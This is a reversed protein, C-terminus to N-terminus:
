YVIHIEKDDTSKLLGENYNSSRIKKGESDYVIAKGDKVGDKIKIVASTNSKSDVYTFKGSFLLESDILYYKEWVFKNDIFRVEVKVNQDYFFYYCNGIKGKEQIYMEKLLKNSKPEFVSYKGSNHKKNESEIKALSIDLTGGSVFSEPDSGNLKEISENIYYDASVISDMYYEKQSFIIKNKESKIFYFEQEPNESELEYKIFSSLYNDKYYLIRSPLGNGRYKYFVTEGNLRDNLYNASSFKFGVLYSDWKGDKLGMKYYGTQKQPIEGRVSNEFYGHKIGMLYNEKLLVFGTSDKIIVQGDLLDDIYNYEEHVKKYVYTICPSDSNNDDCPIEKKDLYSFRIEKGNKKDNKYIETLYLQNSYETINYNQDFFKNYYYNVAGSKKDDNYFCEMLLSGTLISFNRWLGTKKGNSYLGINVLFMTTTDSSFETGFLAKNKDFYVKYMGDIKGTKYNGYILSDNSRKFFAGNPVGDEYTNYSLISEKGDKILYASWIGTELNDKYEGTLYGLSLGEGLFFKVRGSLVGNKYEKIESEKGDEYIYCTGDIENDKMTCKITLNGSEDFEKYLGQKLDKQFTCEIKIKGNEHYSTYKGEKTDDKMFYESMKSGNEYFYRWVGNKKGNVYEGLISLSGDDFYISYKGHLLGNKLNYRYRVLDSDEWYVIKEGNDKDFIGNKNTLIFIYETISEYYSTEDDKERKQTKLLLQFNNNEYYSLLLNDEIESKIFKYSKSSLSNLINTYDKKSFIDYVLKNPFGDYTYLYFWASAKDDYGKGFSWTIMNYQESNGKESQYYEWGKNILYQNVAGWDLKKNILELDSITLKQASTNFM